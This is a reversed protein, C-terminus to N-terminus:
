LPKKYTLICNVGVIRRVWNNELRCGVRQQKEPLATTELGYMTSHYFMFVFVFQERIRLTPAKNPHSCHV